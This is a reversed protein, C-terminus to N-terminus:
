DQIQIQIETKSPIVVKPVVIVLVNDKTLKSHIKDFYVNNPLQISKSFEWWFCQQQKEVLTDKIDPKERVGELHLSTNELSIKVSSKLVGWMPVLIVLEQDSEYIDMPIQINEESM